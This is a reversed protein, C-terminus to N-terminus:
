RRAKGSKHSSNGPTPTPSASASPTPAPSPVAFPRVGYATPKANPKLFQSLAQAVIIQGTATDANDVTTLSVGASGNNVADIASRPGTGIIPGTLLAGKSAESLDQALSILALNFPGSIQAPPVTHPVMVIAMTAQGSLSASGNPGKIQLFGPFDNLIQQSDGTTLTALGDRNAIAAAIVQAAAQQGAIQPNAPASHPLVLGAPHPKSAAATLQQETVPGTDFFQPTLQVQGTVSAGARQLAATVGDVTSSDYGPALVLVVKEGALLGHLLNPEAAKAFAQEADIQAKLQANHAYLSKNRQVEAASANNLTTLVPGQLATAGILIGIALALFVAVISVLHYRFDIL